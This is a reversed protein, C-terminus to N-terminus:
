RNGADEESGSGRGSDAAGQGLGIRQHPTLYGWSALVEEKVISGM